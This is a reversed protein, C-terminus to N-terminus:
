ARVCYPLWGSPSGATAGPGPTLLVRMMGGPTDVSRAADRSVVCDVGAGSGFFGFTMISAIPATTRMASPAPPTTTAVFCLEFGVVAVDDGGADIAVAGSVGGDVFKVGGGGGDAGGLTLAEGVALAEAEADADGRM